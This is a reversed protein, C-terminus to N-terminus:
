KGYAAFILGFFHFITFFFIIPCAANSSDDDTADCVEAVNVCILMKCIDKKDWRSMQHTSQIILNNSANWRFAQHQNSTFTKARVTGSSRFVIEGLKYSGM